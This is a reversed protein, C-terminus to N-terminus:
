KTWSPKSGRKKKKRKTTKHLVGGDPRRGGDAPFVGADAEEEEEEDDGGDAEDEVVGAARPGGDAAEAPPAAVAVTGGDSDVTQPQSGLSSPKKLKYKVLAADIKARVLAPDKLSVYGFGGAILLLLFAIVRRPGRGGKQPETLGERPPRVKNHEFVGTDPADIPQAGVPYLVPPGGGPGPGGTPIVATGPEDLAGGPDGFAAAVDQASPGPLGPKSGSIRVRTPQDRLQDAEEPELDGTQVLEQGRAAAREADTSGGVNLTAQADTVRRTLGTPVDEIPVLDQSALMEVEESSELGPLPGSAWPVDSPMKREGSPRESRTPEAKATGLEERTHGGTPRAKRAPRPQHDVVITSEEALDNEIAKAEPPTPRRGIPNTNADPPSGKPAASPVSRRPAPLEGSTKKTGSPRSAKPRPASPQPGDTTLRPVMNRLGDLREEFLQKLRAACAQPAPMGAGALRELDDALEAASGLRREPDPMLARMLLADLESTADPHVSSPPPFTTSSPARALTAAYEGHFGTLAAHVAAALSFVDTRASFSGESLAEPASFRNLKRLGFDLVRVEGDFGLLLSSAAIGGHVFGGSGGLLDQHCHAVHIIRAADVAIRLVLGLPPLQGQARYVEILEQLTAGPFFDYAACQAGDVEELGLPAPLQPHVNAVPILAAEGVPRLVALRRFVGQGGM